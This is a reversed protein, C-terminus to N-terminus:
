GPLSGCSEFQEHRIHTPGSGRGGTASAKIEIVARANQSGGPRGRLRLRRRAVRLDAPRELDGIPEGIGVVEQDPDPDVALPREVEQDIRARRRQEDGGLRGLLDAQLRGVFAEPRGDIAEIDLAARPQGSTLARTSSGNWSTPIFARPRGPAEISPIRPNVM